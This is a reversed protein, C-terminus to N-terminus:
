FKTFIIEIDIFKLVKEMEYVISIAHTVYPLKVELASWKILELAFREIKKLIFRM